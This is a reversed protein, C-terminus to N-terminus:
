KKVESIKLDQEKMGGVYYGVTGIGRDKITDHLYILLVKNHGLIMIQADEDETKIVNELITLIFERRHNFNVYNKIMLSYHVQGRYNLKVENFDEDDVSYNITKVLM